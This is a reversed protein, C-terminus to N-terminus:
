KDEPWLLASDKARQVTSAHLVGKKDYTGRVALSRGVVPVVSRHGDIAPKIDVQIIKKSRTEISLRAGDVSRITGYIEHDTDKAEPSGKAQGGPSTQEAFSVTSQGIAHWSAVLLILISVSLIKRM